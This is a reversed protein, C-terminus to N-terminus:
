GTKHYTKCSMRGARFLEQPEQGIMVQNRDTIMMVYTRPQTPHLRQYLRVTDAQVELQKGGNDEESAIQQHIIKDVLQSQM